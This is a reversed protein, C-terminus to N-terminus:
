GRGAMTVSTGSVPFQSLPTPQQLPGRVKPYIFSSYCKGKRSKILYFSQMQHRETEVLLERQKELSPFGGGM